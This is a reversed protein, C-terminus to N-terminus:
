VPKKQIHTYTWRYNEFCFGALLSLHHKSLTWNLTLRTIFVLAVQKLDLLNEYPVLRSDAPNNASIIWRNLVYLYIHSQNATLPASSHSPASKFLENFTHKWPWGCFTHCARSIAKPFNGYRSINISRRSKLFIKLICVTLLKPHLKIKSM